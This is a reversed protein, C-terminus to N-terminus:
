DVQGVGGVEFDVYMGQAEHAGAHCFLRYEGHRLLLKVTVTGTGPITTLEEDLGDPGALMFNHAASTDNLTLWYVGPRLDFDTRNTSTTTQDNFTLSICRSGCFSASLDRGDTADDAGAAVAWVGAVVVATFVAVIRTMAQRRSLLFGFVGTWRGWCLGTAREPRPAIRPRCELGLCPPEVTGRTEGNIIRVFQFLPM